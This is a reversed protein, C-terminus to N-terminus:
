ETIDITLYDPYNSTVENQEMVRVPIKTRSKMTAISTSSAVASPIYEHINEMFSLKDDHEIKMKWTYVSLSTVKKNAYKTLSNSIFSENQFDYLKPLTVEVNTLKDKLGIEFKKSLLNAEQLANAEFFIPMWYSKDIHTFSFEVFYRKSINGIGKCLDCEVPVEGEGRENLTASGFHGMARCKPCPTKMRADKM